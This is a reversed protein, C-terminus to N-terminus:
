NTAPPVIGHKEYFRALRPSISLAKAIDMEGGDDGATLRVIGRLYMSPALHPAVELAADLDALAEDLMGLRFRVLARSDLPPAAYSAREVARTCLDMADELAVNFLGRYWCDTNLLAANAPKEAVESAILELGDQPDGDLGSVTAMLDTM